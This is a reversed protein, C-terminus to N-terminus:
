RLTRAFARLDGILLDPEELAAFHGGRDFRTYRVLNYGAEVWSRPPRTIEAPFQAVATPVEVKADHTAFRGTRMTEFYIRTSSGITGTVWYSTLNDLIAQESVADFLNGDHDTWAWFKELIWGALGAPSDALGYALTQPNKGQIEQYACGNALFEGMEALDVGESETLEGDGPFGVAMNLHIGALHEPDVLGLWTSVFSGWDGGQALYRDFGLRSMLEAWAEAVAKVDWGPGTTPGSFGFGPLSPVVVHFADAADGGHAVPNRLPEIVDLFETVSGPWGHTLLLPMADPEPSRAVIVHIPTGGITTRYQPWANLRAETPRWDYTDRLTRCLAQLTSMDTGYDWGVDPLEDPWRTHGLRLRLDDLLEDPIAISTAEFGDPVPHDAPPGEVAADGVGEDAPPAGDGSDSGTM